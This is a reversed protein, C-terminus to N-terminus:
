SITCDTYSSDTTLCSTQLTDYCIKVHLNQVLRDHICIIIPFSIVRRTLTYLYHLPARDFCGAFLHWVVHLMNWFRCVFFFLDSFGINENVEGQLFETSRCISILVVLLRVVKRFLLRAVSCAVALKILSHIFKNEDKLSFIVVRTHSFIAYRSVSFPPMSLCWFCTFLVSRVGYLWNGSHSQCLSCSFITLPAGNTICTQTHNVTFRVSELYISPIKM